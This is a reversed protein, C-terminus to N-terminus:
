IGWGYKEFRAEVTQFRFDPQQLCFGLSGAELTLVCALLGQVGPMRESLGTISSNNHNSPRGRFDPDAFCRVM